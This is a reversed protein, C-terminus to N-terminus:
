DGDQPEPAEKSKSNEPKNVLQDQYEPPVSGLNNTAHMVGNEDKWKYFGISKNLPSAFVEENSEEPIPQTEEKVTTSTIAEVGGQEQTTEQSEKKEKPKNVEVNSKQKTTTGLTSGEKRDGLGKSGLSSLGYPNLNEQPFYPPNQFQESQTTGQSPIQDVQSQTQSTPSNVETGGNMTQAVVVKLSLFSIIILSALAIRHM